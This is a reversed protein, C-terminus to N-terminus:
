TGVRDEVLAQHLAQQGGVVGHQYRGSAALVVPAACHRRVDLRIADRVRERQQAVGGSSARTGGGSAKAQGGRAREDGGVVRGQALELRGVEEAGVGAVHALDLIPDEGGGVLAEGIQDRLPEPRPRGRGHGAHEDAGPDLGVGDSRHAPDQRDEGSPQEGDAPVPEAQDGGPQHGEEVRDVALEGADRQGRAAESYPSPRTVAQSIVKRSV